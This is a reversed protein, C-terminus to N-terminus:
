LPPTKYVPVGWSKKPRWVGGGGGGWTPVRGFLLRPGAPIPWKRVSYKGTLVEANEAARSLNWRVPVSSPFLKESMTQMKAEWAGLNFTRYTTSSAHVEGGPLLSYAASLSNEVTM